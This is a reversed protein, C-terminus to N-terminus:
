RRGGQTVRLGRLRRVDAEHRAQRQEEEPLRSLYVSLALCLGLADGPRLEIAVGPGSIGIRSVGDSDVVFGAAAWTGSRVRADQLAEALSRIVRASLRPPLGHRTLTAREIPTPDTM